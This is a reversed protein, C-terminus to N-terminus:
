NQEMYPWAVFVHLGGLDVGVDAAVLQFTDKAM